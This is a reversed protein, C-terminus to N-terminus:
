SSHRTYDPQDPKKKEPSSKTNHSLMRGIHLSFLLWAHNQQGKYVASCQTDLTCGKYVASCQTDLTCGKYVASCETDLTCRLCNIHQAPVFSLGFVFKDRKKTPVKNLVLSNGSKFSICSTWSSMM